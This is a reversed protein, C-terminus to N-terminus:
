KNSGKWALDFWVKMSESIQAHHIIIGLLPENEKYNIIAIKDGFIDIEHKLPFLKSDILRTIRFEEMNKSIYERSKKSSAVIARVHIKERTRKKVFKTTLWKYLEKNVNEAQLLAYIPKKEIIMDEYVKKIGELGEYTRVVPRETSLTYNLSLSPMIANLNAKTQEFEENVKEALEVLKQPSQPKVHIIKRIDKQSILGKEELSYLAKYVTPRKFKSRNVLTSIPIEGFKLLLEYLVSETETLGISQLFSLSMNNSRKYCIHESLDLIKDYYLSLFFYKRHNLGMKICLVGKSVEQLNTVELQIFM